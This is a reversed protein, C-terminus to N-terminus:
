KGHNEKETHHKECEALWKSRQEKTAPSCRGNAGWSEEGLERFLFQLSLM